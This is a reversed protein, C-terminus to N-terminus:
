DYHVWKKQLRFQAATLAVILALLVIATAAAYGRDNDVFAREYFLFVITEGGRRALSGSSTMLYLIDFVQLSSIITLVTVFFVSPTLLPITIRFFQRVRGAGDIAAAEYIDQPIAQLGALFIVAHYGIHAWIGVVAMSWLIYRQDSVWYPGKVGFFSLLYNLLGFDGNYIWRWIMAVAAPMTVVPLFYLTRYTGVGRLGQTNLLAALVIALPIGLLILGCYMLTHGLVSLLQEDHLLARYNDLGTWEHGGFVGWETFSFYITQLIPWLYFIGLGLGTPAIMAYAWVWERRQGGRHRRAAPASDVSAPSAAEIVSM